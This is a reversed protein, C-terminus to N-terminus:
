VNYRITFGTQATPESVYVKYPQSTSDACTINVTKVAFSATVDFANPDLIQKITWNSPVAICMRKNNITYSFSQSAVGTVKKTMAKIQTETPTAAAADVSGIYIPYVFNYSITNSTVINKGDNVDAKFSKNTNLATVTHTLTCNGTETHNKTAVPTAGDLIRVVKIADAERKGTATFTITPISTGKEFTGGNNTASFSIGPKVYQHLLKFLLEAVDVGDAAVFGKDIGGIAVTSPVDSTYKTMMKVTKPAVGGDNITIKDEVVEISDVKNDWKSIQTSNVFKRTSSEVVQDASTELHIQEYQGDANLVKYKGNKIIDPM